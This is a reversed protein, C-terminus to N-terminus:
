YEYNVTEENEQLLVAGNRLHFTKAMETKPSMTIVRYDHERELLSQILKQGCGKKYSWISYLILKSDSELYYKNNLLEKETTPIYLRYATCVIAGIEKDQLWMYVHSGPHMKQKPSISPRIPDDLLVDDHEM